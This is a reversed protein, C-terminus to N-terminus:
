HTRVVIAAEAHESGIGPLEGIARAADFYEVSEIGNTSIDRLSDLGGMRSDNLYVLIGTSMTLSRSGRSRLWRPRLRQVLEYADQASSAEIETRSIRDPNTAGSRTASTCSVTVVTAGILLPLLFPRILYQVSSSM